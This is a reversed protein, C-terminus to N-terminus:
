WDLAHFGGWSEDNSDFEKLRKAAPQPSRDTLPPPVKSKSSEFNCVSLDSEVFKGFLRERRSTWQTRETFKNCIKIIDISEVEDLHASLLVLNSMRNDAIQNRLKTKIADLKSFSREASATNPTHVLTLRVLEIFNPALLWLHKMDTKKLEGVLASISELHEIKILASVSCFELCLLDKDIIQKCTSFGKSNLLRNVEIYNGSLGQILLKELESILQLGENADHRREINNTVYDCM